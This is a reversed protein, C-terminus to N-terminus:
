KKKLDNLLIKGLLIGVEILVIMLWIPIFWDLMFKAADM